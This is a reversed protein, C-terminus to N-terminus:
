RIVVHVDPGCSAVEAAPDLYLVPIGYANEPDIRVIAGEVPSPDARLVAAAYRRYPRTLERFEKPLKSASVAFQTAIALALSGTVVWAAPPSLRSRLLQRLGFLGEALLMAFGAAPIYLYRSSNDWTFFSTPAVTLLIWVVLFRVRATGFLLLTAVAAAAFVRAVINHPGMFLSIVYDLAHPVAHWGLQYHGETILYSRSNVDYEIGLYVALIVVFPAFRRALTTLSTLHFRGDVGVMTILVELAILMPLLTASSEHTFLCTAFAALSIGYFVRGGGELYRVYMWLALLYWTAPLLDTIAAVWVIAQVYGPHVAFLLAAMGAVPANKTLARAFCFLLASNIAHVVVSAIHFSLPDCGFLRRGIFFYVEIVPRYFHNYQEIHLLKVPTFTRAGQLWQFDDNFYYIRSVDRYVIAVIVALAVAGAAIPFSPTRWWSAGPAASRDAAL